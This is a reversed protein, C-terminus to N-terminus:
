EMEFKSVKLWNWIKQNNILAKDLIESKRFPDIFQIPIEVTALPNRCQQLENWVSVDDWQFIEIIGGESRLRKNWKLKSM